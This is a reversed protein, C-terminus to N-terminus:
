NRLLFLALFPIKPKSRALFSVLALFHFLPSPSPFSPFREEGGRGARKSAGNKARDKTRTGREKSRFRVSVSEVCALTSVCPLFGYIVFIKGSNREKSPITSPLFLKGKSTEWRPRNIFPFSSSFGRDPRVFYTPFFYFRVSNLGEWIAPSVLRRNVNCPQVLCFM